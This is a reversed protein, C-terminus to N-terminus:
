SPLCACRIHRWKWRKENLIIQFNAENLAESLQDDISQKLPTWIELQGLPRLCRRAEKLYDRWNNGMLSLSFIALDISADKLPVGEGIDCAIVDEDIAIHDFSHVLYDSGLAKSLDAKGCGFDGIIYNNPLQRCLKIIEFLPDLLWDQRINELDTHYLEWEKPEKCLRKHILSSNSRNWRANMTNFDGFKGRIKIEEAKNLFELPVQIQRGHRKLVEDQELRALWGDIYNLAKSPTLRNDERPSIGDVAAEAIARKAGIVSWRWECFSWRASSGDITTYHVFTQPIHVQVVKEQRERALRAQIQANDGETWPLSAYILQYCRDQLGDIGTGLCDGSGILVDTIGAKFEEISDVFNGGYTSLKNKGTYIGVKLGNKELEKRIPEVIGEIYETVIISPQKKCLQLIKPIKAKCLIKEYGSIGNRNSRRLEKLEELLNSSDIQHINTSIPWIDSGRQRIGLRTFEQFMRMANHVNSSTKLDNREEGFILEILKKGEMLNNLIPTGSMGIVMLDKNLNGAITLCKGIQTRRKSVYDKTRQKAFQIEDIIFADPCSSEMIELIKEDNLLSFQEYNILLYHPNNTEWTVDIKKTKIEIDSWQEKLGREWSNITNNPCIVWTTLAKRTRTALASALTKGLGMGSLILLRSRENAEAASVKQM